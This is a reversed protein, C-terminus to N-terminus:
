SGGALDGFLLRRNYALQIEASREDNDRRVEGVQEKVKFVFQHFLNPTQSWIRKKCHKEYENLVQHMTQFKGHMIFPQLRINMNHVNIRSNKAHIYTIQM